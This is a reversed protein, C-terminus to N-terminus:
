VAGTARRRRPRGGAAPRRHQRRAARVGRCRADPHVRRHPGPQHVAWGAAAPAAAPLRALLCPPLFDACPGRPLSPYRIRWRRLASDDLPLVARSRQVAWRALGGAMRGAQRGALEARGEGIAARVDQLAAREEPLCDEAPSLLAMTLTRSRSHRLELLFHDLKQLALRGKVEVQLPLPLSTPFSPLCVATPDATPPVGSLQNGGSSCKQAAAHWHLCCCMCCYVCRACRVEGDGLLAAVDGAGALADATLLFAGVGPVLFQGEWVGAPM